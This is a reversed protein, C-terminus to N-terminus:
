LLLASGLALVDKILVTKWYFCVMECRCKFQADTPHLGSSGMLWGSFSLLEEKM